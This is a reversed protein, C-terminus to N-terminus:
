RVIEKLTSKIDPYQFRFDSQKLRSPVVAPSEIILVSAEGFALKLAFGPVAFFAPRNLEGALAKTFEKNTIMDPATLNYAGKANENELAWAFARAVDNEHVFPFPQKGNGIQGGIGMKFPLLMKKITEAEAGLVLGIRFITLKVNGPLKKWANEWDKLVTGEFGANFDTSSEDHTKGTEYIHVASASIVKGPREDPKMALIAAAINRSTIVRSDYIEKKNKETWRQLIPAGALFYVADAGALDNKLEEVPAYLLKRSIGSVEHGAKKLENSVKNGLYGTAGAMKIKM